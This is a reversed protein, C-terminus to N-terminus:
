KLLLRGPFFLIFLLTLTLPNFYIFYFLEFILYDILYNIM